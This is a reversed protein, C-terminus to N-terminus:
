SLSFISHGQKLKKTTQPSDEKKKMCSQKKGMKTGGKGYKFTVFHLILIFM